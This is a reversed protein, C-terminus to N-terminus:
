RSVSIWNCKCRVFLCGKLDSKSRVPVKKQKFIWDVMFINWVFMMKCVFTLVQSAPRGVSM